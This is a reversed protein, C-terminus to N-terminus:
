ITLDWALTPYTTSPSLSPARSVRIPLLPTRHSLGRDLCMGRQGDRRGASWAFRSEVICCSATLYTARMSRRFGTNSDDAPNIDSCRTEARRIGWSDKFHVEVIDSGSCGAAAMFGACRTQNRCWNTAKGITLNLVELDYKSSGIGATCTAPPPVLDSGIVGTLLQATALLASVLLGLPSSM